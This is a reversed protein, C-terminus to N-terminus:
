PIEAIAVTRELRAARSAAEVIRLAHLGAQVSLPSHGGVRCAALFAELEAVGPHVKPLAQLAAMDAAAIGRSVLVRRLVELRRSVREDDRELATLAPDPTEDVLHGEFPLRM